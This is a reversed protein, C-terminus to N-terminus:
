VVIATNSKNTIILRDSFTKLNLQNTIKFDLDSICNAKASFVIFSFIITLFFKKM